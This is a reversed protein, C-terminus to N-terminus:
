PRPSSFAPKSVHGVKFRGPTKTKTQTSPKLTTRTASLADIRSMGAVANKDALWLGERMALWEQFRPERCRKRVTAGRGPTLGPPWKVASPVTPDTM